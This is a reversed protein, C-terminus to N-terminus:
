ETELLGSEVYSGRDLDIRHVACHVFEVKRVRSHHAGVYRLDARGINTGCGPEAIALDVDYETTRRALAKRHNPVTREVIRSVTQDILKHSQRALEVGIIEHELVDLAQGNPLRSQEKLLNDLAELLASVVHEQWITNQVGRIEAHWLIASPKEQDARFLDATVPTGQRKTAM